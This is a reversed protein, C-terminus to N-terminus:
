LLVEYKKLIQQHFNIPIRDWNLVQVIIPINSMQLAEEFEWLHLRGTEKPVVVLDLDSTEHAGGNVRSGYAWLSFKEKINDKALKIIALKDKERILM